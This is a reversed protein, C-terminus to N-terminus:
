FTGYPVALDKGRAELLALDFGNKRASSTSTVVVKVKQKAVVLELSTGDPNAVHCDRMVHRNSVLASSGITELKGKVIEQVRFVKGTVDVVQWSASNLCFFRPSIALPM